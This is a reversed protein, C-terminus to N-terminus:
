SSAFHHLHSHHYPPLSSYSSILSEVIEAELQMSTCDAIELILETQLDTIEAYM